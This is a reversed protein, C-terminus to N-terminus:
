FRWSSPFCVCGGLVHFRGTAADQKLLVYDPEWAEGLALCRAFADAAETPAGTESGAQERTEECRAPDSVPAGFSRALAIAEELLPGAGPLLAACRSTDNRLWHRRQALLDAHRETPAFFAEASGAKLGFSHQYDADPLVGVWAPSPGTM